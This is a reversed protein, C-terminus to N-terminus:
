DAHRGALTVWVLSIGALLVSPLHVSVAFPAAVPAAMASGTGLLLLADITAFTIWRRRNAITTM